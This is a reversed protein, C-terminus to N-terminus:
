HNFRGTDQQRVSVTTFARVNGLAEHLYGGTKCNRAELIYIGALTIRMHVAVATMEFTRPTHRNMDVYLLQRRASDVDATM